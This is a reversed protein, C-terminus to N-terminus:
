EESDKLIEEGFKGPHFKKKYSSKPSRLVRIPKVGAKLADEIDSDSDGYFIDLKLEKMKEVKGNPAFFIHSIPIGFKDKIFRKLYIGNYPKRATIVYVEDGAAQHKKVLEYVKKKVISAGSDSRNVIRWFEKSFPKVDSNFGKQFAPTSFLLTDDIDFGVRLGKKELRGASILAILILLLFLLRIRLIKRIM